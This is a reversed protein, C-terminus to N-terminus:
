RNEKAPPFGGAASHSSVFPLLASDFRAAVPPQWYRADSMLFGLSAQRELAGHTWRLRGKGIRALGATRRPGYMHGHALSCLISAPNEVLDFARAVRHLADPYRSGATADFWEQDTAWGGNAASAAPMLEAFGLPDGDLPAYRWVPATPAVRRRIAADGRGSVIRWGETTEYVCLDVGNEEALLDAVRGKQEEDTYVEFSSVLGFPTLVVDEPGRLRSAIRLGAQRLARRLPKWVNKLPEGGAIGHDSLIVVEFPRQPRRARAESLMADLEELLAKLAAPSLIHAATDTAAIYISYFQRDSEAFEHIARRLRKIGSRVPRVAQVFSGAPGKRNLDFFSRWGFEIKFYSVPGGGVVKRRSWEFFRAEYGPSKALGFPELMGGLAVSTTSPFTSILPVPGKFDRFHGRGSAVVEQVVSFPVSDLVIM